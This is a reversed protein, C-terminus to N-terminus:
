SLVITSQSLKKLVIYKLIIKFYNFGTDYKNSEMGAEM